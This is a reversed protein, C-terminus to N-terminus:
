LDYKKIKKIRDSSFDTTAMLQMLEKNFEKMREPSIDEVKKRWFNSKFKNKNAISSVWDLTTPKYRNGYQLSKIDFMTKLLVTIKIKLEDKRLYKEEIISQALTEALNEIATM